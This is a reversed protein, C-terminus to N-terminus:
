HRSKWHTMPFLITLCHQVLCIQYWNSWTCLPLDGFIHNRLILPLNLILIEFITPGLFWSKQGLILLSLPFFYFNKWHSKKVFRWEDVSNKIKKGKLYTSEQGLIKSKLVWWRQFEVVMNISINLFELIVRVLSIIKKWM